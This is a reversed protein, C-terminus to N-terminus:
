LVFTASNSAAFTGPAIKGARTDYRTAPAGRLPGALIWGVWSNADRGRVVAKSISHQEDSRGDQARPLGGNM